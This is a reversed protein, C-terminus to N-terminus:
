GIWQQDERSIGLDEEMLQQLLSKASPSVAGYITVACPIHPQINQLEVDVTIDVELSAAKDLIYTELQTKIIRMRQKDTESVTNDIIMQADASFANLYDGFAELQVSAWPKILAITLFVGCLLKGVAAQTGSKGLLGSVIGCLISACILSLLYQGIKEM